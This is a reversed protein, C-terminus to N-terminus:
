YGHWSYLSPRRDFTSKRHHTASWTWVSSVAGLYLSALVMSASVIPNVRTNQLASRCRPRAAKRRAPAVPPLIIRARAGSAIRSTPSATISASLKTTVWSLVCILPRATRTFANVSAQGAPMNTGLAAFRQRRCAIRKTRSILAIRIIKKLLQARRAWRCEYRVRRRLCMQLDPELLSTIRPPPYNMDEMVFPMMNIKIDQSLTKAKTPVTARWRALIKDGNALIFIIFSIRITCGYRYIFVRKGNM